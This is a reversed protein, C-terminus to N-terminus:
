GGAEEGDLGRRIIRALELGIGPVAALQEETAAEVASLSGLTKLLATKRSLGVGPISDLRSLLTERGRRKRHHTIGFRHAEDRIRMLYLLVPAHKKFLIPNKRGPRYLKDAEGEERGKAIGALEIAGVLGLDEFVREAMALQGRGGDVLLLDPPPLSAASSGAPDFRRRLVEDMSAYDDPGQVTKIRFHRYRAKQPEGQEFRVLAGVAQEGGLNSIDLCEISEPVAALHLKEQLKDGMIQWSRDQEVRDSLAKEANRAAMQVLRVGIGRQPLHVIVRRAAAEALWDAVAEQGALELPTLIEHPIEPQEEYWRSVVEALVEGDEGVSEEILFVKQGVLVGRRLRLLCIAVLADQRALGFVDQDTDKQGVVVQKEATTALARIRDRFSAAEEYAMRGAAASMLGTLERIVEENRGELVLLVSGVNRLYEERDALGACPALCRKIQHNLCPRSRTVLKGQRCRRLPFQGALFHLTQWMAGVSSFPGFYRAGDRLRRRSMTVRPWEEQVTVKIYPYNKDDRLLVNYRPHYQKILSGELLLAEKETNTVITEIRVVKGLMVVTKGPLLHDPRTYSALRKALNLAKGVYLVGDSRDRMLYVGPSRPINQVLDAFLSPTLDRGM